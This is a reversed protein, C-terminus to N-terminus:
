VPLLHQGSHPNRKDGTRTVGVKIALWPDYTDIPTDSGYVLEVGRKAFVGSPEAHFPNLAAEPPL